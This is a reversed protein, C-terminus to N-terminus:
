YVKADTSISSNYTQYVCNTSNVRTVHRMIIIKFHLAMSEIKYLYFIFLSWLVRSQQKSWSTYDSRECGVICSKLIQRRIILLFPWFSNHWWSMVALQDIGVLFRILVNPVRPIKKRPSLGWYALMISPTLSIGNQSCNNNSSGHQLYVMNCCLLTVSTTFRHAQFSNYKCNCVSIYV